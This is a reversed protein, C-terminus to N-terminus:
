SIMVPTHGSKGRTSTDRSVPSGTNKRVGSKWM